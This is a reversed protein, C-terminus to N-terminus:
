LGLLGQGLVRGMDGSGLLSPHILNDGFYSLANLAAFGSVGGWANFTDIYGVGAAAAVAQMASQYSAPVAPAAVSASQANGTMHIVDAGAAKLTTFLSQMNAISQSLSITGSNADNIVMDGTIVVDPAYASICALPGTTPATNDTWNTSTSGLVGANGVRLTPVASNYPEFGLIFCGFAGTVTSLNCTPRSTASGSVTAKYIGLASQSFATNGGGNFNASFGSAVGANYYYIDFHDFTGTDPTFTLNGAAGFAGACATGLAGWSNHAGLSGLGTAPITWGSGLTWRSDVSTGSSTNVQPVSLSAVATIGYQNLVKALWTTPGRGVGGGFGTVGTGAFTGGIISAGLCLMKRDQVGEMVNALARHLYPYKSASFPLILGSVGVGAAAPNSFPM